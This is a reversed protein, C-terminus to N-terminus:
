KGNNLTNTIMEQNREGKGQKNIPSLFWGLYKTVIYNLKLM